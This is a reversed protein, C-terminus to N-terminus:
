EKEECGQNLIKLNGETKMTAKLSNLRCSRDVAKLRNLKLEKLSNVNQM